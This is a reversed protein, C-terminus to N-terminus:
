GVKRAQVCADACMPKFMISLTYLAPHLQSLDCVVGCPVYSGITFYKDQFAWKDILQKVTNLLGLMNAIDPIKKQTGKLTLLRQAKLGEMISHSCGFLDAMSHQINQLFSNFQLSEDMAITTNSDKTTFTCSLLEEQQREQNYFMKLEIANIVDM